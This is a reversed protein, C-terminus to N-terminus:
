QGDRRYFRATGNAYQEFSIGDGYPVFYDSAGHGMAEFGGSGSHGIPDM